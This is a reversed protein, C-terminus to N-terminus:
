DLFAGHHHHQQQKAQQHLHSPSIRWDERSICPKQVLNSSLYKTSLNAKQIALAADRSCVITRVFQNRGRLPDSLLSSIAVSSNTAPPAAKNRTRDKKHKKEEAGGGESGSSSVEDDVDAPVEAGAEGYSGRGVDNSLFLNTRTLDVKRNHLADLAEGDENFIFRRGLAVLVSEKRQQARRAIWSPHPLLYNYKLGLRKGKKEAKKSVLKEAIIDIPSPGQQYWAIREDMLDHLKFDKAHEAAKQQEESVTLHLFQRREKRNMGDFTLGRESAEHLAQQHKSVEESKKKKAAAAKKSREKAEREARREAPSSFLYSFTPADDDSDQAAGERDLNASARLSVASSGDRV